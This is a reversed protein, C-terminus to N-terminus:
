ESYQGTQQMRTAAADGAVTSGSHFVAASAAPAIAATLSLAAFAALFLNKM